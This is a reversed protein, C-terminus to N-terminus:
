LEGLKRGFAYEAPEGVLVDYPAEYVPRCDTHHALNVFCAPSALIAAPVLLISGIGVRFAALPRVIAMDLGTLLVQQTTSTTSEGADGSEAGAGALVHRASILALVAAACAIWKMKSLPSIPSFRISSGFRTPRTRM